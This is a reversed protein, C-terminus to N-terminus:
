NGPNLLILEAQHPGYHVLVALKDSLLALLQKDDIEQYLGSSGSTRIETFNSASSVIEGVSGSQTTVIQGPQLPRSNVVMPDSQRMHVPLTSLERMKWFSLLCIGAMATASLAMNFRRARKRRRASRLAEDLLAARFEPPAADELLDDLLRETTRKM